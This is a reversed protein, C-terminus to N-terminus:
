KRGMLAAAGVGQMGPIFMSGLGIGASLLDGFGMTSSQRTTSTSTGGQQGFPQVMSAYWQAMDKPYNQAQQFQGQQAALSQEQLTRDWAAYRNMDDQPQQGLGYINTSQGLAGQAASNAGGAFSGFQGLLQQMQSQWNNQAGARAQDTSLNQGALAQQLGAQMGAGQLGQGYAALGGQSVLNAAQDRSQLARQREGEYVGLANQNMRQGLEPLINGLAKIGGTGNNLFTARTNLGPLVENNFQRLLPANAADVAGQAGAYDPQGSLMSTLAGRADLSGAQGFQPAMGSPDLSTDFGYRGIQSPGGMVSRATAGAVAPLAGAVSGYAGGGLQGQYAGATQGFNLQPQTGFTQTNYGFQQGWASNEADTPGVTLPGPFPNYPAKAANGVM